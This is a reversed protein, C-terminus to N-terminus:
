PTYLTSCYIVVSCKDCQASNELFPKATSARRACMATPSSSPKPLNPDLLIYNQPFGDMEICIRTEIRNCNIQIKWAQYKRHRVFDEWAGCM